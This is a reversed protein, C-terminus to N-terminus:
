MRVTVSGGIIGHPTGCGLFVTRHTVFKLICRQLRTTINMALLIHDKHVSSQIDPESGTYSVKLPCDQVLNFKAWIIFKSVTWLEFVTNLVLNSLRKCAIAFYACILLANLGFNINEKYNKLRNNHSMWMIWWFSTLAWNYRLLSYFVTTIIDNHHM